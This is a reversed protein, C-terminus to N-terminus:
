LIEMGGKDLVFDVGGRQFPALTKALAYPVGREVLKDATPYDKELRARGLSAVKLQEQPIPNVQAVDPDSVLYSYFQQYAGIPIKWRGSGTGGANKEFVPKGHGRSVRKIISRLGAVPPPVENYISLGTITFEKLNVLTLQYSKKQQAPKAKPPKILDAPVLEPWTPMFDAPFETYEPVDFAIQEPVYSQYQPLQYSVAAPQYNYQPASAAVPQNNIYHNKPLQQQMQQQQSYGNLSYGPQIAHQGYGSGADPMNVNGPSPLMWDPINANRASYSAAGASAPMRAVNNQVNEGSAGEDDDSSLEIVDDDYTADPLAQPPQKLESVPLPSEFNNAANNSANNTSTPTGMVSIESDAKNGSQSQQQQQQQLQQVPTEAPMPEAEMGNDYPLQQQQQEDFSQLHLPSAHGITEEPLEQQQDQYNNSQLEQPQQSYQQHDQYYINEQGQQQGDQPPQYNRQQQAEQHQQQLQENQGHQEQQQPSEEHTSAPAQPDEAHDEAWMGAQDNVPGPGRGGDGEEEFPSFPPSEGEGNM